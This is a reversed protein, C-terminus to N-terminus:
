QFNETIIVAIRKLGARKMVTLVALRFADWQAAPITLCGLSSTGGSQKHLNTWFSSHYGKDTWLGDGLSIGRTAHVYGAPKVLKHRRVIVSGDQRFAEHQSRKGIAHTGPKVYIVQNTKLTAVEPREVSPDANGNFTSFFDPGIVAFGDDNIGIDNVGPRGMSDRYYGSCAVIFAAPLAEGFVKQAAKRWKAEPAQPKSSPTQAM